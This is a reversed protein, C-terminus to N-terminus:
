VCRGAARAAPPHPGVPAGASALRYGGCSSRARAEHHARASNREGLAADCRQGIPGAGDDEATAELADILAQDLPTAELLNRDAIVHKRTPLNRGEDQEVGAHPEEGADHALLGRARLLAEAVAQEFVRLIGHRLEALAAPDTGDEARAVMGLDRGPTAGLGLPEGACAARIQPRRMQGAGALGFLGAFPAALLGAPVPSLAAGTDYFSARGACVILARAKP